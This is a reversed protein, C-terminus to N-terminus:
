AELKSICNYHTLEILLGDAEKKAFEPDQSSISQYDFKLRVTQMLRVSFPRLVVQGLVAEVFHTM